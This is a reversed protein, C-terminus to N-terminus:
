YLCSTIQKTELGYKIWMSMGGVHGPTQNAIPDDLCKQVGLV